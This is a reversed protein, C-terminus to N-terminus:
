MATHHHEGVSRASRHSAICSRALFLRIPQCDAGAVERNVAKTRKICLAPYDLRMLARTLAKLVASERFLPVLITYIPLDADAIRPAGRRMWKLPFSVVINICAVLRLAVVMAFFLTAIGAVVHLTIVPILFGSICIAAFIMALGYRQSTVLGQGASEGPFRNTLSNIANATLREAFIRQIVTRLDRPTTIAIRDVDVALRRKLEGPRAAGPAYAVDVRGNRVRRLLQSKLAERPTAVHSFPTLSHAARAEVFEAGCDQALARYYDNPRVWGNAMLVDHPTVNWRQALGVARELTAADVLTGNM